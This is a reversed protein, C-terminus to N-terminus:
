PLLRLALSGRAPAMASDPDEALTTGQAILDRLGDGDIRARLNVLMRDGDVTSLEVSEVRGLSELYRMTRKHDEFSLVNGIVLFLSGQDMGQTENEFYRQALIDAVRQMGEDVVEAVTEGAGEWRRSGAPLLLSIRMEWRSSGEGLALEGALIADPDYPKSAARIREEDIDPSDLGDAIDEADFSPFAIPVGREMSVQRLVEMARTGSVRMSARPSGVMWSADGDRLVLRVLLTPRPSEWIPLRAARIRPELAARDFLVHLRSEGEEEGVIERYWQVFEPAGQVLSRGAPTDLGPLGEASRLGAIRAILKRLALRFSEAHDGEAGTWQVEVEYLADDAEATSSALSALSLSLSLLLIFAFVGIGRRASPFAPLTDGSRDAFVAATKSEVPLAPFPPIPITSHM